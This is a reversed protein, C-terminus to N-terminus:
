KPRSRRLGPIQVSRGSRGLLSVAQMTQDTTIGSITGLNPSENILEHLFNNITDGCSSTDQLEPLQTKALTIRLLEAEVGVVNNAAVALCIKSHSISLKQYHGCSVTNIGNFGSIAQTRYSLSEATAEHDAYKYLSRGRSHCDPKAWQYERCYMALQAEPKAKSIGRRSSQFVALRRFHKM